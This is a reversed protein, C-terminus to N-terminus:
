ALSYAPAGRIALYVRNFLHQFPWASSIHIWIKRTTRKIWAGVKFLRLRLTEIQISRLEKQKGLNNKLLTIFNYACSHLLLRFYNASFDHCSLRDANFGIKLEKIRNESEGRQCYFEYIDKSKGTMNTVVFRIDEQDKTIEIKAIVRRQKNWTGARYKFNAFLCVTENKTEFEKRAEALKGKIKQQLVNNSGIGIVYRLQLDKRECFYYMEPSSFGGDGRVTIDAEPFNEKLKKVIPELYKLADHATHVNGPRLFAGLLLQSEPESILLPHYMTQEYYGNFMSMQQKGHTEDNTSDIDTIIQKPPKKRSKIYNDLLFGNILDNERQTIRNELRCITPQSALESVLKRNKITLQFLPDLRLLDSDDADEYGLAIQFLRQRLMEEQEHIILFENRPDHICNNLGQLFSIKKDFERLLLLGGDSSIEGGEFDAVINKDFSFNLQKPDSKTTSKSM